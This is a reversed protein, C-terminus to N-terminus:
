AHTVLCQNCRWFGEGKEGMLHRRRVRNKDSMRQGWGDLRLCGDSTIGTTGSLENVTTGRVNRRERMM